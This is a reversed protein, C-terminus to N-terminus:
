DGVTELWTALDPSGGVMFQRTQELMCAFRDESETLPGCTDYFADRIAYTDGMRQMGACKDDTCKKLDNMVEGGLRCRNPVRIGNKQTCKDTEDNLVAVEAACHVSQCQWAAMLNTACADGM